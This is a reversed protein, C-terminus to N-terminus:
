PKDLPLLKSGELRVERNKLGACYGEVVVESGTQLFTIRRHESEGIVRERDSTAFVRRFEVPPVFGAVMRLEHDPLRLTASYDAKFLPKDVDTVFGRVRIVRKEYRGKAAEPNAAFHNLLDHLPIVAKPDLEPLSTIAPTPPLKRAAEVVVPPIWPQSVAPRAAQVTGQLRAIEAQAAALETQLRDAEASRRELEALRAPAISILAPDAAQNRGAPLLGLGFLLVLARLTKM